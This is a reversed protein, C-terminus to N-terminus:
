VQVKEYPSKRQVEVADAVAMYHAWRAPSETHMRYIADLNSGSGGQQQVRLVAAVSRKPTQVWERVVRDSHAVRTLCPRLLGRVYMINQFENCLASSRKAKTLDVLSRFTNPELRVSDAIEKACQGITKKRDERSYWISRTNDYKQFRIEKYTPAFTVRRGTSTRDETDISDVQAVENDGDREEKEQDDQSPASATEDDTKETHDDDADANCDHDHNGESCPPPELSIFSNPINEEELEDQEASYKPEDVLNPIPTICHGEAEEHCEVIQRQVEDTTFQAQVGM